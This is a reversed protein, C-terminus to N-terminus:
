SASPERRELLLTQVARGIAGREDLLLSEAMGIGDRGTITTADLGIWDGSPLAHLHVSLDPNAFTYKKLDLWVSVGNGSDSALVVRDLPSLAEGEVLPVRPRMWVTMAGSGFEGRARKLEMAVHYGIRDRFFSFVYPECAAPPPPHWPTVGPADGARLDPADVVPSTRLILATATAVEKDGARLIARRLSAKRGSRVEEVEVRLAGIPIPRALEFTLRAVRAGSLGRAICRAMLACPPGAHQHESSWPGRTATTASFDREGERVYFAGPLDRLSADM